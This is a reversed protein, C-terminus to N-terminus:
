IQNFPKMGASPVIRAPHEQAVVMALSSRICSREEMVSRYVEMKKQANVHDKCKGCYWKDNGSLTEEMQSFNLCDYISVAGGQM